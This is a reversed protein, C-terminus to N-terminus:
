RRANQTKRTNKAMDKQSSGRARDAFTRCPYVSRGLVCLYRRVGDVVVPQFYTGSYGDSHVAVLLHDGRHARIRDNRQQARKEAAVDMGKQAEGKDGNM